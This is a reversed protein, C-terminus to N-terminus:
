WARRAIKLPHVRIDRGREVFRDSIERIGVVAQARRNRQAPRISHSARRASARFHGQKGRATDPLALGFMRLLLEAGFDPGDELVRRDTQIFPERRDPQNGVALVANARALDSAIQADSLLCAPEHKVADALRHLVARKLLSSAVKLNVFRKDATGGAEHVLILFGLNGASTSSAATLRNHHAQQIAVSFLNAQAVDLVSAAGCKLSENSLIDLATGVNVAISPTGVVAQASIIDMLHDVVGFALNVPVNVRVSDLIEPRQQLAAQFPSVDAHFREMQKAVQIFLRESVVLALIIITSAERQRKRLNDSLAHGILFQSALRLGCVFTKTLRRCPRPLRPRLETIAGAEPIFHCCPFSRGM